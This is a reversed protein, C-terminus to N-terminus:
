EPVKINSREYEKFSGEVERGIKKLADNPGSLAKPTIFVFVENTDVDFVNPKHRPKSDALRHGMFPGGPQRNTESTKQPSRTATGEFSRVERQGILGGLALSEESNVYATTNLRTTSLQPAGGISQGVIFSSEVGITMDILNQPTIEPLVELTLGVDRYEISISGTGQTVPIPIEDGVFFTALKKNKTVISQQFLTRAKGDQELKRLQPFLASITGTTLDSGDSSATSSVNANIDLDLSLDKFADREIEMINLDVQILPDSPPPGSPRKKPKAAVRHIKIVNVIDDTYAKAIQEARDRSEQTQVTGELLYNNRTPKVTIGPLGITKRIEEAIINKLTPSTTVLNVVNPMESVVDEVRTLAEESFVEGEVVVRDGAIRSSVGEIDQLLRQVDESLSQVDQVRGVSIVLEERLIQKDWLLINTNGVESANLLIERPGIRTAECVEPNGTGIKAVDFNTEIVQSQGPQLQIRTKKEASVTASLFLTSIFVLLVVRLIGHAQHTLAYM